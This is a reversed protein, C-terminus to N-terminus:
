FNFELQQNNIKRVTHIPVIWCKFLLSGNIKRIGNDWKIYVSGLSPQQLVIGKDGLQVDSNSSIMEVKDGVKLNM